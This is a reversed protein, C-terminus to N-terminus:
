IFTLVSIGRLNAKPFLLQTRTLISLFEKNTLIMFRYDKMSEGIYIRNIVLKIM